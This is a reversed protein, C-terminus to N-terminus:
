TGHASRGSRRANELAHPSRNHESIHAGFPSVIFHLSNLALLHGMSLPQVNPAHSHVDELQLV